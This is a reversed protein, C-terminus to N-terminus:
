TKVIKQEQEKILDNDKIENLRAMNEEYKLLQKDLNVVQEISKRRSVSVGFITGIGIGPLKGLISPNSQIQSILEKIDVDANAAKVAEWKTIIETVQQEYIRGLYHPFLTKVFNEQVQEEQKLDSLAKQNELLDCRKLEILEQNDFIYSDIASLNKQLRRILKSAARITNSSPKQELVQGNSASVKSGHFDLKQQVLEREALIEGSADRVVMM